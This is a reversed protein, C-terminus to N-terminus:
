KVIRWAVAVWYDKGNETVALKITDATPIEMELRFVGDSGKEMPYLAGNALLAAKAAAPSLYGFRVKKGHRLDGSLPEVLSDGPANQYQAYFLPFRSQKSAAANELQFTLVKQLPGESKSSPIPSDPRKEGIDKAFVELTYLGASPLIVQIRRSDPSLKQIMTGQEIEAGNPGSLVADIVIGHKTLGIDFSFEGASAMKWSLGSGPLKLGYSFFANEVDPSNLFEEPSIPRTVLQQEEQKPYRMYLSVQPDVFLNDTSYRKIFLWDKVHGSDFTTDVIYRGGNIQVINWAHSNGATLGRPGVQNKTFGSVTVCSFSAQEAMAQFVRSYGSCVAKRSNMVHEIDQDAAFQNRLMAVDYSINVCIWDHILKIKMFPDKEQGVLAATLDKLGTVPNRFAAAQIKESLARVRPDIQGNRYLSLDPWASPALPTPKTAPEPPRAVLEPPRAVAAIQVSKKSPLLSCAPLLLCAALIVAILATPSFGPRRCPSHRM